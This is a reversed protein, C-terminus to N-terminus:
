YGKAHSGIRLRPVDQSAAAPRSWSRQAHIVILAYASGRALVSTAATSQQATFPALAANSGARLRLRAGPCLTRTRPRPRTREPSEKHRRRKSLVSPPKATRTFPVELCRVPERCPPSASVTVGPQGGVNTEVRAISVRLASQEQGSNWALARARPGLAVSM